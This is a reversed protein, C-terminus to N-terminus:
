PSKEKPVLQDAQERLRLGSVVPLGPQSRPLCSWVPSWALLLAPLGFDRSPVM